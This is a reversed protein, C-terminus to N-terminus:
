LCSVVEGPVHILHPSAGLARVGEATIRNRRLALRRLGTLAGSRALARAGSDGLKGTNMELV